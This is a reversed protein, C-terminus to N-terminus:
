VVPRGHLQAFRRSQHDLLFRLLRLRVAEAALNADVVLHTGHGNQLCRDLLAYADVVEAPQLEGTRGSVVDPEARLVFVLDDTPSLGPLLRELLPIPDPQTKQSKLFVDLLYRDHVAVGGARIWPQIRLRLLLLRKLYAVVLVAARLQPKAARGYASAKVATSTSEARVELEDIDVFAHYTRVAASPVGLDRLAAALAATVSSKGVGDPGYIAVNVGGNRPGRVLPRRWSPPAASVESSRVDIIRSDTAQGDDVHVLVLRARRDDHILWHAVRVQSGQHCFGAIVDLVSSVGGEVILALSGPGRRSDDPESHPSPTRSVAQQELLDFLPELWTPVQGSM